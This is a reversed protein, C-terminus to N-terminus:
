ADGRLSQRHRLAWATLTAMLATGLLALLVAPVIGLFLSLKVFMLIPWLGLLSLTKLAESHSIWEAAEPGFKYYAKVFSKGVATTLLYKNRFERFTQVEPAMQSGYTATTIFCSKDDLLGVVQSPTACVKTANGLITQDPFYTINGTQDVSALAFCYIVDNELSRIRNDAVSPPNSQNIKLALIVSDANNPINQANAVGKQYFMAIRNYKVNTESTTLDYSSAAYDFIYVKEDGATVSYDCIGQTPDAPTSGAPCNTVTASTAALTSVSRLVLNFDVKEKLTGDSNDIGVSLTYGSFSTACSSDNTIAQCLSSWKIEITFPTGASLSPSSSNDPAYDADISGGKIRYRIRPTGQFTSTTSSVLTVRLRLDPHISTQNCWKPSQTATGANVFTGDCSNCTATNSRSTSACDGTDGAYGGYITPITAAVGESAPTGADYYSLGAPAAGGSLQMGTTPAPTGSQAAVVGGTLLSLALIAKSIITRSVEM